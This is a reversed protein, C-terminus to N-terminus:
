PAAPAYVRLARIHGRPTRTALFLLAEALEAPDIWTEPDANPMAARNAPTDLAGMPYVISVRIGDAALEARLSKLYAAAAAKSAAYLGMGAGGEDAAAAAVGLIFGDGRKKMAPVVARTVNFLTAVNLGFLKEYDTPTAEDAAQMGFGGALNLVADIGGTAAELAEVAARAAEADTLDATEIAADPYAERLADASADSYAVLALRYGAGQFADLTPAALAGGAGTVLVTAPM